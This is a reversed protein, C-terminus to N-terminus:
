GNAFMGSHASLRETLFEHLERGRVEPTHRARILEGSNVSLKRIYADDSLLYHLDEVFTEKSTLWINDKHRFGLAKRDTFDPSITVCGCAAHEFYKGVPVGWAPGTVAIKSRSLLRFLRQGYYGTSLQRSPGFKWTAPNPTFQVEGFRYKTGGLLVSYLTLFADIKQPDGVISKRLVKYAYARFPYNGSCAGWFLIDIDRPIDYDHVDICHPSWFAKGAWHPRYKKTLERYAVLRFDFKITSETWNPPAGTERPHWLDVHFRGKLNPLQNLFTLKSWYPVHMYGLDFLVVDAKAAHRAVAGATYCEVMECPLHRVRALSNQAKWATIEPEHRTVFVVKM